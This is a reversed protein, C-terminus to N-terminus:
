LLIALASVVVVVAAAVVVVDVLPPHRSIKVLSALLIERLFAVFVREVMDLVVGMMSRTKKKKKEM